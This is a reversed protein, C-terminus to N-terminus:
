VHKAAATVVVTGKMFPHVGCHYHYTGPKAFTHSWVDGQGLGMSDFSKDDAVVTHPDDDSNTWTVTSGAVVTISPKQFAYDKIAVKGATASATMSTALALALLMKL